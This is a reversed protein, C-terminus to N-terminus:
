ATSKQTGSFSESTAPSVVFGQSSNLDMDKGIFSKQGGAGGQQRHVKETGARDACVPVRGGGVASGDACSEFDGVM